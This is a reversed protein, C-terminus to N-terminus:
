GELAAEVAQTIASLSLYPGKQFSNVRGDPGIVFTEPVGRIRYAQSIRTGLDPGNPYSIGFRDLYGLAEPETDVYNVGLFVVGRDKMMQYAQELEAAEDECPKCWSAWFNIVVVQGRLDALDIQEGQFTTLTFDPAKSGVGVPGQQSRLLSVGLVGLLALIVAWALIVGWRRGAGGEMEREPPSEVSMVEDTM